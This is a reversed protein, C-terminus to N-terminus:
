HRSAMATRARCRRISDPYPRLHTDRLIFVRFKLHYNDPLLKQDHVIWEIYKYIIDFIPESLDVLIIVNINHVNTSTSENTLPRILDMTSNDARVGMKVLIFLLFILKM